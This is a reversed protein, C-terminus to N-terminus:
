DPNTSLNVLYSFFLTGYITGSSMTRRRKLSLFILTDGVSILCSDDRILLMIESTNGMEILKDLTGKKLSALVYRNIGELHHRNLSIV